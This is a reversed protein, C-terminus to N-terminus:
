SVMLGIYQQGIVSNTINAVDSHKIEWIEKKYVLVTTRTHVAGPLDYKTM